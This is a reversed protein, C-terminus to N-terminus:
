LLTLQAPDVQRETPSLASAPFARVGLTKLHRILAGDRHLVFVTKARTDVVTQVLDDWDAHDSLVFGRDYGHNTRAMWGSAFATKYSEGLAAAYKSSMMSQPGIILEGELVHESSLEGMCRSEALKFGEDRYCAILERASPHCYVPRSMYPELLGLVRQTKGLSYAFIVTNIGKESNELYWDYIQRGVDEGKKWRYSPTGFTAETVFTDCTVVEFPECTPDPERKYDGSVVWVEGDCELRVQASGMIHGAAHFSLTVPGLKFSEGFPIGEIKISPGLRCKVLGVGSSAAYYQRSGRRAHDSHAHTLVARDVAGSPDVYFDGKACYLGLRRLELM